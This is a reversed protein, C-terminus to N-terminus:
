KHKQFARYRDFFSHYNSYRDTALVFSELIELIDRNFFNNCPALITAIELNSDTAGPFKPIGLDEVDCTM